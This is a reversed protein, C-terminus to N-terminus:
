RERKSVVYELLERDSGLRRYEDSAGVMSGMRGRGEITQELVAMWPGFRHKSQRVTKLKDMARIVLAHGHPVDCYCIFTLVEAV